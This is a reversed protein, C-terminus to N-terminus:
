AHPLSDHGVFSSPWATPTAPLITSITGITRFFTARSLWSIVSSAVTAFNPEHFVASARRLIPDHGAPGDDRLQLDCYGSTIVSSEIASKEKLVGAVFLEHGISGTVVTNEDIVYPSDGFFDSPNEDAFEILCVDGIDTDV